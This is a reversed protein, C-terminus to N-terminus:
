SLSCPVKFPYIFAYRSVAWFLGRGRIDGVNKHGGLREQLLRGLYAGNERTNALLNDEEVIKQVAYSAACALPHAQYTQSHAFAGSGQAFADAVRRNVLLAGIPLYGSGLGKAVTQLDPVVGEEEWAHLYGTRGMGSMVEDMILLAGYRDCVQKM